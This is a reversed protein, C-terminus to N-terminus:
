KCLICDHLNLMCLFQQYLIESIAIGNIVANPVHIDDDNLIGIEKLQRAYYRDKKTILHWEKIQNEM